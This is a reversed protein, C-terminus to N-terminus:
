RSGRHDKKSQFHIITLVIASLLSLSGVVIYAIGLFSNKGGAWTMQAIVFSKTGDFGRTPYNYDITLTYNGAPLGATTGHLKRFTPFAATRMWVELAENEYGNQNSAPDDTDTIISVESIPHQWNPPKATDEFSCTLDNANSQTCTPNPDPNKFKVTHDTSWAINTKDIDFNAVGPLPTNPKLDFTDNFLSNAITGCPAIPQKNGNADELTRYPECNTNINNANISTSGSLQSNDRSKVYVRHNQFFNTLKYYYYVTGELDNEIEIALECKCAQIVSANAVSLYCPENTTPSICETYPKTLEFCNNSTILLVIGLPIFLFGIVIFTPLVNKATLVPQWAPLRQQKFATNEPQNSRDVSM